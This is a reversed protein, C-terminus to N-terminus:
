FIVTRHGFQGLGLFVRDAVAPPGSALQEVPKGALGASRAPPLAIVLLTMTRRLVLAASSDITEFESSIRIFTTAPAIVPEIEIRVSAIWEAISRIADIM